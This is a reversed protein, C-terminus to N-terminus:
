ATRKAWAINRSTIYRKVEEGPTVPYLGTKRAPWVGFKARYKHSAWGDSYGKVRAYGLLERYWQEKTTKDAKELKALKGSTEVVKNQKKREFGCAPCISGIYLHFCNPCPKPAKEEKEQEKKKKESPDIREGNDLYQPMEDDPFGLRSINGGHDLIVAKDKDDHRRLVRGMMQIHLMLSKTPRALIICSTAPSDWGKTLIGVNVVIKVSGDNHARMVDLRDRPSTYADIHAASIGNSLFAEELAKSHAVDVAFCVTQRDEGHKIWTNVVSGVIEKKNVKKSLEGENFDGATVKVGSLDPGPPGYAVYDSLYGEKILDGTSAVVILDDYIEGLGCTFPTASLGIAPVRNWKKLLAVTGKYVDHCEDIIVLDAPPINKRRSLTQASAVQVPNDPDYRWHDGQIVGHGIGFGDFVESTQDILTIRDAVFMVRKGKERARKIIELAIRTKGAGTPAMLVPRKHGSRISESLRRIADEQHPYLTM